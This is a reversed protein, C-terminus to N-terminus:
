VKSALLDVHDLLETQAEPDLCDQPEQNEQKDPNELPVSHDWQVLVAPDEQHDLNEVLEASELHDQNVM